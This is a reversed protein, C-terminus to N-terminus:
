WIENRFGLGSYGAYISPNCRNMTWVVTLFLIIDFLLFFVLSILFKKLRKLLVVIDQAFLKVFGM